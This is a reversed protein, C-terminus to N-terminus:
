RRVLGECIVTGGLAPRGRPQTGVAQGSLRSWPDLRESCATHAAPPRRWGTRTLLPHPPTQCSLRTQHLSVHKGLLTVM